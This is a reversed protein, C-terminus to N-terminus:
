SDTFRVGTVSLQLNALDDGTTVMPQLPALMAALDLTRLLPGAAASLRTFADASLATTIARDINTGVPRLQGTQVARMDSASAGSDSTAVTELLMAGRPADLMATFSGDPQLTAEVQNVVVKVVRDGSSGPLATGTVLIPGADRQILSRAPSTIKLVPPPAEKCAAATALLLLGTSIAVTRM